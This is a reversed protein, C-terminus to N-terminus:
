QTVKAPQANKIEEVAARYGRLWADPAAAFEHARIIREMFEVLAARDILDPTM